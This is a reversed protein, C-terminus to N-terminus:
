SRARPTMLAVPLGLGATERLTAIRRGPQVAERVTGLHEGLRAAAADIDRVVVVLGWFAAPGAGGPEAPGVVELLCDGIVYFGQRRGGGADRTRRLEFGAAALAALTREHDPTTVVLHDLVLAGLPHEPAAETTTDGSGTALGDIRGAPVGTLAWSTIGGGEGEFRLTVRGIRVRDGDPEFGAAAWADPDCALTLETLM